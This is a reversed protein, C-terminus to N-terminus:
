RIEALRFTLDSVQGDEGVKLETVLFKYYKSDAANTLVYVEDSPSPVSSANLEYSGQVISGIRDSTWAGDITSSAASQFEPLESEPTFGKIESTTEERDAQFDFGQVGKPGSVGGNLKVYYRKFAIDWELSTSAEEDTLDIVGKGFAFYTYKNAPDDEEAYAGGARADLLVEIPTDQDLEAWRFTIMGSELSGNVDDYYDLLQLKYTHEADVQIAYVHYRSYVGHTAGSVIYDYWDTLVSEFEDYYQVPGVVDDHDTLAEYDATGFGVPGLGWAAGAGSEGGNLHLFNGELRLDWETSNDPNSPSVTSRSGFHFYTPTGAQLSLSVADTEGPEPTPTPEGSPTPSLEPTPSDESGWELGQCGSLSLSSITWMLLPTWSRIQM